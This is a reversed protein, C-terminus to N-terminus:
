TKNKPCLIQYKMIEQELKQLIPTIKNINSIVIDPSSLSINAIM